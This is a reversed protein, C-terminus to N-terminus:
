LKLHVMREKVWQTKRRGCTDEPCDEPCEDPVSIHHKVIASGNLRELKEIVTALLTMTELNAETDAGKTVCPHKLSPEGGMTVFLRNKESTFQSGGFLFIQAHLGLVVPPLQTSHSNLLLFPVEKKQSGIITNLLAYQSISSRGGMAGCLQLPTSLVRIKAVHNRTVPDTEFTHGLSPNFVSWEAGTDVLFDVKSNELRGKICPICGGQPLLACLRSERGPWLTNFLSTANAAASIAQVPSTFTPQRYEILLYGHDSGGKEAAMSIDNIISIRGELIAVDLYSTSLLAHDLRQGEFPKSGRESFQTMHFKSDPKTKTWIDNVSLEALFHARSQQEMSSCGPFGEFNQPLKQKIRRFANEHWDLTTPNTNFDSIFLLPRDKHILSQVRGIVIEEFKIKRQLREDSGNGCYMYAGVLEIKEFTLGLIRAENDFKHNDVGSWIRQPTFKSLVVIGAYGHHSSGGTSSLM